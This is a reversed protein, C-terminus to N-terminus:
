DRKALRYLFDNDYIKLLKVLGRYFEDYTGDIKRRVWFAVVTKVVNGNWPSKYSLYQNSIATNISGDKIYEPHMFDYFKEYDYSSKSSNNELFERYFRAENQWFDRNKHLKVFVALMTRALPRIYKDYIPQTYDHFLSGKETPIFLDALKNVFAPNYHGFESKSNLQLKDHSHPGSSFIPIPLFNQLDRYSLFEQAHCYFNRIGGDPFYDFERCHNRTDGIRLWATYVRGRMGEPSIKAPNKYVNLFGSFAWGEVRGYRVKLWYGSLAGVKGLPGYLDKVTIVANYPISGIKKFKIGPRQRM